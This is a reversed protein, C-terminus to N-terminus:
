EGPMGRTVGLRRLKDALPEEDPEASGNTKPDPTWALTPQQPIVPQPPRYGESYEDVEIRRDGDVGSAEAMTILGSMVPYQDQVLPTNTRRTVEVEYTTEPLSLSTMVEASDDAAARMQFDVVPQVLPARRHALVTRRKGPPAVAKRQVVPASRPTKLDWSPSKCKSCRKPKEASYWVHGCGDRDCVWLTGPKQGM